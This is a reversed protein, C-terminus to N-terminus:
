AAATAGSTDADAPRPQDAGARQRRRQPARHHRADLLDRGPRGERVRARGRPDGRRPHRDGARRAGADVGDGLGPVGRVRDDGARRVDRQVLDPRHDRAGDHEVARHRVGVDIGLWLDAWEASSPGARTSSSWGPARQPDGEPRPPLLDSADRAREVGVARHSRHERDGRVFQDRWRSRVGDGSRRGFSRTLHPQLQRHQQQSPGSRMFKQAVFNMENTAKSCSFLGVGEGANRETAARLGAAARDLAEDWTATRLGGNDRVMPETLRTLGNKM